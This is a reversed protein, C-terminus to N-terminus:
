GGPSRARCACCARRCACCNRSSRGAGSSGTRQAIRSRRPTPGTEPGPAVFSHGQRDADEPAVPVAEQQEEKETNREEGGAQAPVVEPGGVLRVDPFDHTLDM